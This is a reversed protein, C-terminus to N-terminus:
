VKVKESTQWNSQKSWEILLTFIRERIKNNSINNKPTSYYYLDQTVGVVM